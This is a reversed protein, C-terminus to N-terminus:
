DEYEYGTIYDFAVEFSIHKEILLDEEFILSIYFIREKNDVNILAQKVKSGDSLTIIRDDYGVIYGKYKKKEQKLIAEYEKYLNSLFKLRFSSYIIFLSFIILLASTIVVFLRQTKYRSLLLGLVFITVFPVSFVILLIIPLRKHKQINKLGEEDYLRM